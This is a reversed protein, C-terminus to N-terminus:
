SVPRPVSGTRRSSSRPDHFPGILRAPEHTLPPVTEALAHRRRATRPNNRAPPRFPALAQRRSARPGNQGAPDREIHAMAPKSLHADDRELSPSLEEPDTTAHAARRASEHELRPRPDDAIPALIVSCCHRPESECHCLLKATGHQSVLDATSELFSQSGQRRSRCKSAVVVHQDGPGIYRGAVKVAQCM